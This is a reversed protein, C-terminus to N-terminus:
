QGTVQQHVALDIGITFLTTIKKKFIDKQESLILKQSFEESVVNPEYILEIDERGGTLKQHIEKIYCNLKEIFEKRAQIIYTGYEVLKSNWIDLTDMLDSNISIQKLLENRQKLVSKDGELEEYM